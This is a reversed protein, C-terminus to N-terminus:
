SEHCNVRSEYLSIEKQAEALKVKLEKIEEEMGKIEPVLFDKWRKWNWPWLLTKKIISPHWFIHIIERIVSADVPKFRNSGCQNCVKGTKKAKKLWRPPINKGCSNCRYFTHETSM